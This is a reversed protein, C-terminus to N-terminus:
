RMYLPWGKKLAFQFSCHAFDTISVDTNFMGLTVGGGKTFDHVTYKKVEGGGEPTYVLEVRGNGPVVFDTAIYQLAVLCPCSLVHM